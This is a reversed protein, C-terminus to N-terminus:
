MYRLLSFLNLNDLKLRFMLDVAALMEKTNGPSENLPPKKLFKSMAMLVRRIQGLYSLNRGALRASYKTTYSTLQSMAADIVPLSLQCSSIGRLAEPVNHAEDIVVLAHKLSLGISQRAQESLLSNYPLVVVEAAAIAERSAYYSCAHGAKGLSAVDEIDSPQALSHLALTSVAGSSELLPCKSSVKGNMSSKDVKSKQMDLCIETIAAESRRSKMKDRSSYLVDDNSCLVSRSGLAVVKVTDGWYTRKLEGIFQSLQSHTRAAYIIKRLGTGPTVQGVAIPTDQPAGYSRVRSNIEPDFKYGSGDLNAGHLMAKASLNTSNSQPPNPPKDNLSQLVVDDNGDESDSSGVSFNKDENDSHYDELMFDNENKDEEVRRKKTNGNMGKFGRHRKREVALARSIGSKLLNERLTRESKTKDTTATSESIASVNSLKSLRARIASLEKNLAARNTIAYKKVQSQQTRLAKSSNNLSSAISSPVATDPQWSDLWDRRKRPANNSKADDGMVEDVVSDEKLDMKEHYRLWAMSACALSLSKGTGTPSEVMIISAKRNANTSALTSANKENNNSPVGNNTERDHRHRLSTLIASMLETQVAYPPSYPFPVNTETPFESSDM